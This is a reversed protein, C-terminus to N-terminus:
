GPPRTFPEGSLRVVTHPVPADIPLLRLEALLREAEAADHEIWASFAAEGFNVIHGNLQRCFVLGLDENVPLTFMSLNLLARLRSAPHQFVSLSHEGFQRACSEFDAGVLWASDRCVHYWLLMQTDDLEAQGVFRSTALKPVLQSWHVPTKTQEVERMARSFSGRLQSVHGTAIMALFLNVRDLGQFDDLLHMSSGLMRDITVHLRPQNIRDWSGAFVECVVQVYADELAHDYVQYWQDALYGVALTLSFDPMGTSGAFSKHYDLLTVGVAKHHNVTSEQLPPNM